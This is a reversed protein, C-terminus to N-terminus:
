FSSIPASTSASDSARALLGALSILKKAVAVNLM